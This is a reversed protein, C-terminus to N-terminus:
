LTQLMIITANNLTMHMIEFLFFDFQQLLLVKDRKLAIEKELLCNTVCLVQLFLNLLLYTKQFMHSLYDYLSCVASESANIFKYEFITKKPCLNYLKPNKKTRVRFQVVVADRSQYSSIYHSRKWTGNFIGLQSRLNGRKKRPCMYKGPM